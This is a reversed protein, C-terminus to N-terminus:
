MNCSLIFPIELNLERLLDLAQLGPWSHMSYDCIIVDYPQTRLREAFTAPDQVRDASLDFDMRTLEQRCLEVNSERDDVFLIRVARRQHTLARRAALGQHVQHTEHRVLHPM